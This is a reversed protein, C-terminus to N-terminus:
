PKSGGTAWGIMATGYSQLTKRGQIFSTAGFRIIVNLLSGNDKTVFLEVSPFPTNTLGTSTTAQASTVRSRPITLYPLLESRKSSYFILDVGDIVVYGVLRARARPLTPADAGILEAVVNSDDLVASFARGTPFQEGLRAVYFREPVTMQAAAGAFILAILAACWLLVTSLAVLDSPNQDTFVIVPAGILILISVVFTIALSPTRVVIGLATRGTELSGHEAGTTFAGPAASRNPRPVAPRVVLGTRPSIGDVQNFKPYMTTYGTALEARQKRRLFPLFIAVLAGCMVFSFGLIILIVEGDVDRYGGAIKFAIATGLGAFLEIIFVLFAFAVITSATGAAMGPLMRPDRDTM